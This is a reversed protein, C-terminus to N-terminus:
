KTGCTKINNKVTDCFYNMLWHHSQSGCPFCGVIHHLCKISCRLQFSVQWYFVLLSQVTDSCIYIYIWVFLMSYYKINDKFAARTSSLTHWHQWHSVLIYFSAYICVHAHLLLSLSLCLNSLLLLLRIFCYLSLLLSISRHFILCRLFSSLYLSLLFFHHHKNHYLPFFSEFDLYDLRCTQTHTNTHKDWSTYVDSRHAHLALLVHMYKCWLLNVKLFSYMESAKAHECHPNSQGVKTVHWGKDTAWTTVRRQTTLDLFLCLNDLDALIQYVSIVWM